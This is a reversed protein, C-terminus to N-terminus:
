AYFAKTICLVKDMIPQISYLALGLMGRGISPQTGVFCRKSQNSDLAPTWFEQQTCQFNEKILM